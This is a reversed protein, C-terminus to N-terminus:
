CLSKFQLQSLVCYEGKDQREVPSGAISAPLGLGSGEPGPNEQQANGRGADPPQSTGSHHRRGCNRDGVSGQADRNLPNTLTIHFFRAGSKRGAIKQQSRCTKKGLGLKLIM